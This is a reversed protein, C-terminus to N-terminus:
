TPFSMQPGWTWDGGVGGQGRGGERLAVDARSQFVELPPSEGVERPLQAM